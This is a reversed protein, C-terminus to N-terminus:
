LGQGWRYQLLIGVADFDSGTRTSVGTSGYFKISHRRDIPVSFTAGLRWNEQRDDNEIGNVETSGGVYYTSDLAVWIGRGLSYVLHGQVAYLPDQERTMGNLFDDNITYFTVSPTVELTLPGWAKSIGLEPKVSWRNTGINILNGSDYQGLPASVQLSAGVIVDQKYSAFEQMSLAPAGFFNLTFRFKPDNFGAVERERPQGAFTADGSLWSYPLIADVKASMGLVSISRAYATVATHTRLNADRLPLSPDTALGGQAYGYGGLVFNLGIPLNAYARPELDQASAASSASVAGAVLLATPVAGRWRRVSEAIGSLHILGSGTEIRM